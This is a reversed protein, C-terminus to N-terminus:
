YSVLKISLLVSAVPPYILNPCYFLLDIDVSGDILAVAESRVMELISIMNCIIIASM